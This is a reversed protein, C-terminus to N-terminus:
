KGNEDALKNMLAWIRFTKMADTAPYGLIAKGDPVDRTVGSRGGITVRNGIKVHDKIAAQGAMIVGDGLTVSGSIGCCAAILCSRGITCNHAIQVLNDIKTGDGITTSGFKGRDICTGAGIEVGNGIVVNGIHPIKVVGNGDPSPLFGFGDAGINVNSHLLCNNGIICRESIVTGTRIVTQDGIVADDLITTNPYIVSNNGISVGEGIYCHAGVITNVGVKASNQICATEHIGGGLNVSEPTYLKLIKAMAHDVNGVVIFARNVGPEASSALEKTIIAASAFSDKWKALFPKTGIFTINNEVAKDIQEPGSIVLSPNGILQGELLTSLKGVDFYKM